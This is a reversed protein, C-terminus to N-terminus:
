PKRNAMDARFRGFAAQDAEDFFAVDDFDVDRVAGDVGLQRVFFDRGAAGRHFGSAVLGPFRDFVAGPLDAAGQLDVRGM